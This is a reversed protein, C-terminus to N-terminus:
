NLHRGLGIRRVAPGRGVWGWLMRRLRERFVPCAANPAEGADGAEVFELLEDADLGPPLSAIAAEFDARSMGRPVRVPRTRLGLRWEFRRLIVPPIKM